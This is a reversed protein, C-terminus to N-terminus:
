RIKEINNVSVGLAMACAEKLTECLAPHPHITLSVDELRAGMEIALLAEDIIDFARPGVIHFGLIRHTSREAVVKVFGETKGISVAKGNAIFPSRAVLVDIGVNKAEHESMGASAIEPDSSVTYPMVTYEPLGTRGALVEAISAGERFAKSANCHGCKVDGIAYISPDGTLFSDDAIVFGNKDTKVRTNELGLRDTNGANGAAVLLIKTELTEKKGGSDIDIKVRDGSVSATWSANSVVRVGKRKFTEMVPQMIDDDLFPLLKEGKHILTLRTGMAALLSGMTIAEYGGGAIVMDEPIRDFNLTDDTDIIHRGDFPLGPIEKYRTGTAIVARNFSIHQSGEPGNILAKSSSLFTCFGNMVQVGNGKCLERIGNELKAVVRDKWAYTKKLDVTVDKAILGKDAAGKCDNAMDFVHLITKVPICGKHLCIGGLQDNNVLTVDLGLQACRIAATYGAPGAGAILVDTGIEIEGVVM